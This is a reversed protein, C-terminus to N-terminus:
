PVDDLIVWGVTSTDTADSSTITFSTGATRSTVGVAAPRLITGLTQPTLFIRSNAGVATTTVVVQGAVMATSVGLKGNAGEQILLGKGEVLIALDGDQEIGLKDSLTQETTGTSGPNPTAFLITGGSTSNGTGPKPYIRRIGGSQDTGLTPNTTFGTRRCVIFWEITGGAGSYTVYLPTANTIGISGPMLQLENYGITVPQLFCINSISSSSSGIAISRTITSLCFVREIVSQAPIVPHTAGINGVDTTTGRVVFSDYPAANDFANAGTTSIGNVGNGSGDPIIGSLSFTPTFVTGARKVTSGNSWTTPTTGDAIFVTGSANTAAGVNLFNDGTAYSVIQYRKGNLLTGSSATTQSAGVMDWSPGDAVLKTVEDDGLAYNILAITDSEFPSEQRLGDRNMIVLNTLTPLMAITSNTGSVVDSFNLRQQNIYGRLASGSKVLTLRVPYGSNMGIDDLGTQVTYNTGNVGVVIALSETRAHMSVGWTNTQQTTGITDGSLAFFPRSTGYEWQARLSVTFDGDGVRAAAPLTFYTRRTTNTSTSDYQVGRTIPKTIEWRPWSFTNGSVQMNSPLNNPYTLDVVAGVTGDWARVVNDRVRVNRVESPQMNAVVVGNSLLAGTPWPTIRLGYDLVSSDYLVLNRAIESEFCVPRLEMASAPNVVVNDNVKMYHNTGFGSLFPAMGNTIYNGSVEFNKAPYFPYAGSFGVSVFVSHNTDALNWMRNNKVAFDETCYILIAGTQANTAGRSGDIDYIHNDTVTAHSLHEIHIGQGTQSIHNGTVIPGTMLNTEVGGWYERYGALNIAFGGFSFPPDTPEAGCRTFYNNAIILGRDGRAWNLLIGDYALDRFVNGIVQLSLVRGANTVAGPGYSQQVIGYRASELTCGEVIMSTIEWGFPVSPALWILDNTFRQGSMKLGSIRIDGGRALITPNNGWIPALRFEGGASGKITAGNTIWISGTGSVIGDVDIKANSPLALNTTNLVVPNSEDALSPILLRNEAALVRAAAEDCTTEGALRWKFINGDPNSDVWVGGGSIPAIRSGANTSSGGPVWYMLMGGGDGASIRGDVWVGASFATNTGVYTSSLERPDLAVLDDVTPIVKPTKTSSVFEWRGQVSNTTTSDPYRINASNTEDLSFPDYRWLGAWDGELVIADRPVGNTDSGTTVTSLVPLATLNTIYCEIATARATIWSKPMNYNNPAAVGDYSAIFADSTFQDANAIEMATTGYFTMGYGIGGVHPIPTVDVWNTLSGQLQYWIINTVQNVPVLMGLERRATPIGTLPDTSLLQAYNTVWSMWGGKNYRTLTVPYTDAPNTPRIYNVVTEANGSFLVVLALLASLFRNM